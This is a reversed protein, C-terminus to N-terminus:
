EQLVTNVKELIDGSGVVILRDGAQLLAGAGPSIIVEMGRRIAILTAGTRQWLGLQAVSRGVASANESVYVEVPNFPQLNRLRDTYRTIQVIIEDFRNNIENKKEMLFELEQKLSYASHMALHHRIFEEAQEQSQVLIEKGQSVAVVNAQGLLGMAKRITEPSVNYQSALLTRGSIKDGVAFEGNVIREAVDMAISEYVPINSKM